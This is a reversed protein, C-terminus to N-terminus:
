ESENAADKKEKKKKPAKEAKPEDAAGGKKRKYIIEMMKREKQEKRKEFMEFKVTDKDIDTSITRLQYKAMTFPETVEGVLEMAKNSDGPKGYSVMPATSMSDFWIQVYQKNVNDFATTGQGTYKGMGPIESKFTQILYRGGMILRFKASGKLEMPPAGPAEWITQHADWEGVLNKWQKHEKGPEALKLYAAMAEEPSLEAPKKEADQALVGSIPIIACFATIAALTTARKPLHQM